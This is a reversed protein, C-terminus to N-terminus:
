FPSTPEKLGTHKWYPHNRIIESVHEFYAGEWTSPDYNAVVPKWGDERLDAYPNEWWIVNGSFDADDKTPMRELSSIWEDDNTSKLLAKIGESVMKVDYPQEGIAKINLQNRTGQIVPWSMIMFDVIEHPDKQVTEYRLRDLEVYSDALFRAAHVIADIKDM